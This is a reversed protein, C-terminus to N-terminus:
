RGITALAKSFNAASSIVFVKGNLRRVSQEILDPQDVGGPPALMSGIARGGGRGAFEINRPLALPPPYKLYFFRPAAEPGPM